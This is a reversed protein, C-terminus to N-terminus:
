LAAYPLSLICVSGPPLHLLLVKAKTLDQIVQKRITIPKDVNGFSYPMAWDDAATLKVAGYEAYRQELHKILAIPDSEMQENTLNITPVEPIADYPNGSLVPPCVAEPRLDQIPCEEDSDIVIPEVHRYPNPRKASIM